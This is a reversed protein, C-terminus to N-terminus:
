VGVFSKMMDKTTDEVADNMSQGVASAYDNVSSEIGDWSTEFARSIQGIFVPVHRGSHYMRSDDRFDSPKYRQEESHPKSKSITKSAITSEQYKPPPRRMGGLLEDLEETTIYATGRAWQLGNVQPRYPIRADQNYLMDNQLKQPGTMIGTALENITSIVRVENTGTRLLIDGNTLISSTSILSSPIGSQLNFKALEKFKQANIIKISSDAFLIVIVAMLLKSNIGNKNILYPFISVGSSAIPTKFSIHNEYGIGPTISRIDRIGTVAIRGKFIVGQSLQLMKGMTAVCNMGTEPSVTEINSIPGSDNTRVEELFVAKHHATNTPLLKFILLSGAHTGCLMLISSYGDNGYEMMAFNICTIYQSEETAFRKINDKLIITNDRMDLIIITGSTYSVCLFGVNSCKLASIKGENAHIVLLPMFGQSVNSPARDSIDILINRSNQLSFRRHNLDSPDINMGYFQNKQFKFLAVDGTQLAVAAEFAETALSVKNISMSETLNLIEQCDIEFTISERSENSSDFIRVSGNAHGTVIISKYKNYRLLKHGPNGGQLISEGLAEMTLNSSLSIWFKEQVSATSVCTVFPRVWNLSYPFLSAKQIFLGTPYLLTEIEGNEFILMVLGPDHCTNFYPSKRPLPLIDIIDSNSDIPLIKQKKQNSYYESMDEYSTVSYFPTGGLDLICLSQGSNNKGNNTSNQKNHKLYIFLSTYEPDEKCMWSIHSIQPVPLPRQFMMPDVSPIHIDLDFITRAQILEGTNADWFVMSNDEHITLINLSNPHYLSQIIRPTREININPSLEGGPAGPELTYIFTQKITKDNLSFILTVYEYSILITGLDRPNWHLSIVPSIGVQPLYVQRQLNPIKVNSVFDRDVDYINVTGDELGLLIWDVSPDTEIATIKTPTNISAILTQQYLSYINTVNTRDIIVLYIGKIFKLHTIPQRSPLDFQVKVMDKGFIYISSLDTAIALLSQSFNFASCLPKGNFGFADIFSLNFFQNQGDSSHTSFINSNSTSSTKGDGKSKLSLTRKFMRKPSLSFKSSTPINNSLSMNPSGQFSNTLSDPSTLNDFSKKPSFKDLNPRKFSDMSPRSVKSLKALKSLKSSPLKSNVTSMYDTSAINQRTTANNIALQQMKAKTPFDKDQYEEIYENEYENMEWFKLNKM